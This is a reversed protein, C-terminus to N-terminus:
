PASDRTRTRRSRSGSSRSRLFVSRQPGSFGAPSRPLPARAATRSVRLVVLAVFELVLSTGYLLIDLSVLREFSLGLSATWAIACALISVWPAGSRGLRKAFVRPLYGDEAMVAPLRSYSLCLANFMGYASMMGGAVLAAALPAGGFARAADVWAGTDWHSPDVHAAQMAALPVFMVSRSSGWRRCCERASLHAAAGRVEGAITSANDWGMYNWMAVLVRAQLRRNRRDAAARAFAVRTSGSRRSRWSDGRVARPTLVGMVVSEREWPARAASPEVAVGAAIVAGGVAVPLPRSAGARLARPVARVADSLNGHRVREGRAVAVGGPIGLVARPRPTGLRLLWGGGPLAAALEGVMLATPVSWAIPTAVVVAIAAAFGVKQALEELGYPGGSM